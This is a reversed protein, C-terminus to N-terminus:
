ILGLSEVGSGQLELEQSIGVQSSQDHGPPMPLQPPIDYQKHSITGTEGSGKGLLGADGAPVSGAFLNDTQLSHSLSSQSFASSSFDQSVNTQNAQSYVQDVQTGTPMSPLDTGLSPQDVFSSPQEGFSSSGFGTQKLSTADPNQTSSPRVLSQQTQQMPRAAVVAPDM